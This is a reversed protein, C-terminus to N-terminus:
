KIVLTGRRFRLLGLGVLLVVGLALALMDGLAITMYLLIVLNGAVALHLLTRWNFGSSELRAATEMTKVETRAERM